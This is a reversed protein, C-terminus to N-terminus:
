RSLKKVSHANASSNLSWVTALFMNQFVYEDGNVTFYFVHVTSGDM